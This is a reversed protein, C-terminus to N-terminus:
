QETQGDNKEWSAVNDLISQFFSTLVRGFTNLADSDICDMGAVSGTIM